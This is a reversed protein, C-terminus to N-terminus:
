PRKLQLIDSVSVSPFGKQEQFTHFITSTVDKTTNYCLNQRLFTDKVGFDQFPISKTM